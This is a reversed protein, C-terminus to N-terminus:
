RGDKIGGKLKNSCKIRREYKAKTLGTVDTIRKWAETEIRNLKAQKRQKDEKENTMVIEIKVKEKNKVM